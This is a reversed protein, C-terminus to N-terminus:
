DFIDLSRTAGRGRRISRRRGRAGSAPPLSRVTPSKREKKKKKKPPELMRDLQQQGAKSLAKSLPTGQTVDRAASLTGELAAKGLRHISRKVAPQRVTHHLWPLVSRVLRGLINGL